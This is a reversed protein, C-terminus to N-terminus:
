SNGWDKYLENFIKESVFISGYETYHVMDYLYLSDKPVIKDLDILHTKKLLSVERIKENMADYIKKYRNYSLKNNM